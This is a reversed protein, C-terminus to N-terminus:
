PGRLSLDALRERVAAMFRPGPDPKDNRYHPDREVGRTGARTPPDLAEFIIMTM